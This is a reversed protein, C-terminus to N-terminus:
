KVAVWVESGDPRDMWFGATLPNNVNILVRARGYSRVFRGRVKPKEYWVLEGVMNAMNCINKEEELLGLPVNHFQVWFPAKTFDVERVVMFEDWEQVSMLMGQITWPRGRMFRQKEKSNPFSFVYADEEMELIETDEGLLWGKRITAIAYRKNINKTAMIKGIAM